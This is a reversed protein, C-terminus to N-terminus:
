LAVASGIETRDGVLGLCELAHDDILADDGDLVDVPVVLQLRTCFRAGQGHGGGLFDALGGIHRSQRDDQHERGQADDRSHIALEEVGDGEVDRHGDAQRQQDGIHHHGPGAVAPQAAPHRRRGRRPRLM